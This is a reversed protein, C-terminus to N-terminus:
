DAKVKLDSASRVRPMHMTAPVYRHLTNEHTNAYELASQYMEYKGFATSEYRQVYIDTGYNWADRAYEINERLADPFVINNEKDIVAVAFASGANQCLVYYRGRFKQINHVYCAYPLTCEGHELELVTNGGYRVRCGDIVCDWPQSSREDINHAKTSPDYDTTRCYRISYIDQSGIKSGNMDYTLARGIATNTTVWIGRYYYNWGTDTSGSYSDEVEQGDIYMKVEGGQNKWTVLKVDTKVGNKEWTIATKGFTITGEKASLVLGEHWSPKIEMTQGEQPEFSETETTGSAEVTKYKRTIGSSSYYAMIRRKYLLYEFRGNAKGTAAQYLTVNSEETIRCYFLVLDFNDRKYGNMQYQVPTMAAAPSSDLYGDLMEKLRDNIEDWFMKVLSIPITGTVKGNKKIYLNYEHSKRVGPSTGNWMGGTQTDLWTREYSTMEPMPEHSYNVQLHYKTMCEEPRVCVSLVDGNELMKACLTYEEAVSEDAVAEDGLAGKKVYGIGNKLMAYNSLGDGGIIMNEATGIKTAFSGQVRYLNHKHDVYVLYDETPIFPSGGQLVNGYVIKGDTWVKKGAQVPASGAIRLHTGNSDTATLGDTYAITTQYM